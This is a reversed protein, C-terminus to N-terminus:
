ISSSLAVQHQYRSKFCHVAERAFRWGFRYLRGTAVTVELRVMRVQGGLLATGDPFPIIQTRPGRPAAGGLLAMAEVSAPREVHVQSGQSSTMTMGRHFMLILVCGPTSASLSLSIGSKVPVSGPTDDIM